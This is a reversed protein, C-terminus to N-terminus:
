ARIDRTNQVIELIEPYISEDCSRTLTIKAAAKAEAMASCPAFSLDAAQLMSVDNGSDGACVLTHCGTMEKLRLAAEGKGHGKPVMEYAYTFGQFAAYQEDLGLRAFLAKFDAIRDKDMWFAVMATDSPIDDLSTIYVFRDAVYKKHLETFENVRYAAIYEATFFEADFYDGNALLLEITAALREDFRCQWLAKGNQGVVAGNNGILATNALHLKNDILKVDPFTRGSAMTFLGGESKFYTLAERNEESLRGMSDYLTGDIDSVILVGSFKGM